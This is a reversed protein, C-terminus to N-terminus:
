LRQSLGVFFGRRMGYQPAFVGIGSGSRLQYVADTVNVIDFRLTVPKADPIKFEHSAGFNATAYPAVHDTNAFGSRLGSGYVMDVSFRTDHWLYSAGSSATWQQAHDTYVWNGAIFAREDAAFLYQNSVINTAVQRALAVNGYATFNGDKYTASLEIGKNEGREYNFGQLILAAGFQGDDLLDRAIKYYADLSVQLKPGIQQVIGADFYHSREPKVPDQQLTDPAASTGAFQAVNVPAAISQQPPTFYRAYGTHLTTGEFPKYVINVRPSLQNANVFQWMQDFRAGYNVTLQDTLRWEDQLYIGAVGGFRSVGDMLTLPAGGGDLVTSVSSNQTSEGTVTFGARLTHADNIRYSGDAQMGNAISRRYVDSAIGNFLVDGAIDPIFHLTSYRSFAAVQYDVEGVSRQLAVVAFTNQENQKEDLARSDYDTFGFAPGFAVTQGPNNPIQFKNSTNGFITVVRSQKDLLTSTYSFFNGQFTRDHLAERADTPNEIGLASTFGRGAVFYETSGFRGGYDFSPTLTQFSGGYIGIQGGQTLANGSKTQIDVIGATRLGYQAPLAGTILTLNGVFDPTLVHGFGSIGDPLTIGNIRYQVNGHENRVHIEGSAASDQSVGPAQILMKNINANSGQPLAEIFAKNMDFTSAGMRPSLNDRKVDLDTNENALQVNPDAPQTATAAPPPTRNPRPPAARQAQVVIEPLATQAQAESGLLPLLSVSALALARVSFPSM